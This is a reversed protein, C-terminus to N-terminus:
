FYHVGILCEGLGIHQIRVLLRGSRIEPNKVMLIAYPYALLLISLSLISKGEELPTSLMSAIEYSEANPMPKGKGIVEVPTSVQTPRSLFLL